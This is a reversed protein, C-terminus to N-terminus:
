VESFNIATLQTVDVGNLSALVEEGSLIDNGSFSLSEFQLGDALGLRDGGNLNFDTIIDTGSGSRLVFLDDGNSGELTDFGIGGDLFDNSSGGTLLDDGSGGLLIDNGNDGLLTDAGDGGDLTDNNEGGALNDDGSGSHLVDSGNGGNLTDNGDGSDLTDNGTGGLLSDSGAFSILIDDGSGGNLTDNGDGSDLTDNGNGGFLSDNGAGSTLSDDGNNGDITDNGGGGNVTDQGSLAQIEESRDSGLLNDSGNTGDLLVPTEDPLDDFTLKFLETGVGRNSASFFLEDGVVTLNGPNFINDYGYNSSDSLLDAVLQTGETTGDTAFIEIGSEGHFATFYLKGDFEVLNDPFSSFSFYNNSGPHLDVVLQTGEATGDTVFLETGSESANASLKLM